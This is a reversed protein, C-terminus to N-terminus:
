VLTSQLTIATISTHPSPTSELGMRFHRNRWSKLPIASPPAGAGEGHCTSVYYGGGQQAKWGQRGEM